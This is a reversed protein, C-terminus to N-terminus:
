EYSFVFQEDDSQINISFIIVGDFVDKLVEKAYSKLSKKRPIIKPKRACM